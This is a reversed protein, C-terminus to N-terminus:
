KKADEVLLNSLKTSEEAARSLSTRVKLECATKEDNNSANFFEVIAFDVSRLQIGLAIVASIVSPTRLALAIAVDPWNDPYLPPPPKTGFTGDIISRMLLTVDAQVKLFRDNAVHRKLTKLEERELKALGIQEVSTRALTHTDYAYIFLVIVMVLTLVVVAVAAIAQVWAPDHIGATWFWMISHM